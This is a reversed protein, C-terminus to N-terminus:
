ERLAEEREEVIFNERERERFRCFYQLLATFYSSVHLPNATMDHPAFSFNSSTLMFLLLDSIPCFSTLFFVFLLLLMENLEIKMCASLDSIANIPIPKNPAIPSPTEMGMISKTVLLSMFLKPLESTEKDSFKVVEM